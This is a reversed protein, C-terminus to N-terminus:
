NKNDYQLSGLRSGRTQNQLPRHRQEKLLCVEREQKIYDLNCPLAKPRSPRSSHLHRRRCRRCGLWAGYAFRRCCIPLAKHTSIRHRRRAENSKEKQRRPKAETMACIGRRVMLATPQGIGGLPPLAVELRIDDREPVRADNGADVALSFRTSSASRLCM